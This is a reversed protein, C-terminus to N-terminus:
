KDKAVPFPKLVKWIYGVTVLILGVGLAHFLMSKDEIGKNGLQNAIMCGVGAILYSVLSDQPPEDGTSRQLFLVLLGAFIGVTVWDYVTEM